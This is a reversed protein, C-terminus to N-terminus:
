SVVKQRLLNYGGLVTKNYGGCYKSQGFLTILRNKKTKIFTVVWFQKIKVVVNNAEWATVLRLVDAYSAVM